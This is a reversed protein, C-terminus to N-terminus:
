FAGLPAKKNDAITVYGDELRTFYPAKIGEKVGRGVV